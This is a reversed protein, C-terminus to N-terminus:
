PSYPANHTPGEWVEYPDKASCRTTLDLYNLLKEGTKKGVGHARQIAELHTENLAARMIEYRKELLEFALVDSIGKILELTAIDACALPLKEGMALRTEPDDPSPAVLWSNPIVEPKELLLLLRAPILAMVIILTLGSYRWSM